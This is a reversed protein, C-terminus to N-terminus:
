SLQTTATSPLWISSVTYSQGAFSFGHVTKDALLLFPGRTEKKDQEARRRMATYGSM